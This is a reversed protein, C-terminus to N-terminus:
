TEWGRYYDVLLLLLAMLSCLKMGVFRYKGEREFQTMLTFLMEAFIYLLGVCIIGRKLRTNNMCWQLVKTHQCFYQYKGTLCDSLLILLVAFDAFVSFAFFGFKTPQKIPRGEGLYVTNFATKLVFLIM